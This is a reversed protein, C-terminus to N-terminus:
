RMVEIEGLRLGYGGKVAGLKTARLRVGNTYDRPSWSLVLPQKPMTQNTLHVRPHWAAGDFVEIDFDVPFGDDAPRIIVQHFWRPVPLAIQFIEEHDPTTVPDKEPYIVQADRAQNEHFMPTALAVWGMYNLSDYDERPTYRDTTASGASMFLLLLAVLFGTVASRASLVSDTGARAKAREFAFYIAYGALILTCYLLEASTRTYLQVLKTSYFRHAYYMRLLWAGALVATVTLIPTRRAGLWIACGIGAIAFVTFLGVNGLEGPLPWWSSEALGPLGGRWMAFFAPDVKADFPVFDDHIPKDHLVDGLYHFSLIAFVIATAAVLAIGSARGRRWPFVCAGIVFMGPASWQVWGSYMLFILAFGIGFLTGARVLEYPHHEPSRRL